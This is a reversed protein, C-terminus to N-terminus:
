RWGLLRASRGSGTCSVISAVGSRRFAAARRRVRRRATIPTKRALSEADEADGPIQLCPM